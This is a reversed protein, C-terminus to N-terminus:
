RFEVIVEPNEYVKYEDLLTLIRASWNENIGEPIGANDKDYENQEHEEEAVIQWYITKAEFLSRAHTIDKRLKRAYIETIDFHGQEHRLSASDTKSKIWSRSKDM